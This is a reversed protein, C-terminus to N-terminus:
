TQGVVVSANEMDVRVFVVQQPCLADPVQNSVSTVRVTMLPFDYDPTYDWQWVSSLRVKTNHRTM